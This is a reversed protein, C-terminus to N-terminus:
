EDYRVGGEGEWGDLRGKEEEAEDASKARSLKAGLSPESKYQISGPCVKQQHRKERFPGTDRRAYNETPLSRTLHSVLPHM